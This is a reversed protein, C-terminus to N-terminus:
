VQSTVLCLTLDRFMIKCLFTSETATTYKVCYKVPNNFQITSYHRLETEADDKQYPSNQSDRTMKVLKHNLDMLLDENYDSPM